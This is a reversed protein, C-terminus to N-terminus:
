ARRTWIRRRRAWPHGRPVLAVLRDERLPIAELGAQARELMLVALNTRGEELDRLVRATNGMRTQIQVQPYRDRFAAILDTPPVYLAALRDVSPPLRHQRALTLTPLESVEVPLYVGTTYIVNVHSCAVVADLGECAIEERFKAVDTLGERNRRARDFLARDADVVTSAASM